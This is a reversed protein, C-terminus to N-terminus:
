VGSPIDLGVARVEIQERRSGNLFDVIEGARAGRLAVVLPATWAVLGAGPDAEDEGVIRFRVVKGRRMVEVFSGFKVESPDGSPSVIQMMAYRAAWYARQRRLKNVQESETTALLLRDITELEEEILRAGERTVLNPASSVPRDWEPAPSEDIEKTFARSM